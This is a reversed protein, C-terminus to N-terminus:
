PKFPEVHVHIEYDQHNSRLMNLMNVAGQPNWSHITVKPPVLRLAVMARVLDLGTEESRGALFIAHAQEPNAKQMEAYTEPMEIGDLGLDHDLSCEHCPYTLLLRIAEKNTRAWLWTDDPAPRIDDHWLKM